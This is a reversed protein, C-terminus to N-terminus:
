DTSRVGRYERGRKTAGGQQHELCAIADYYKEHDYAILLYNVSTGYSQEVSKCFGRNYAAGMTLDDSVLTGEFGLTRRVLGDIVQKSVSVPNESDVATLVVHSLMIWANTDRGLVVFPIWDTEALDAVSANLLASFHHTDTAVRAIGPFHKLTALVGHKELGHIYPKAIAVVQQPDASIARSAIHTHFDLFGPKMEPKLDVVPSFNLNVGLDGLSKGQTEGYNYALEAYNPENALEALPKQRAVLPSLRSVSGGEQDTAILLPPLGLEEREKQLCSIKRKLEERTTNKVNRATLFIGAIGNRSLQRIENWDDFGVIIRM